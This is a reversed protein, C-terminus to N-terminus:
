AAAKSWDRVAEAQREIMKAIATAEDATALFFASGYGTLIQLQVRDVRAPEISAFQSAIVSGDASRVLLAGGQDDLNQICPSVM